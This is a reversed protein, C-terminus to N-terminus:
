VNLTMRDKLVQVARKGFFWFPLIGKSLDIDGIDNGEYCSITLLDNESIWAVDCSNIFEMNRMVVDLKRKSFVPADPNKRWDIFEFSHFLLSIIDTQKSSVIKKMVRKLEYHNLGPIIQDNREYFPTSFSRYTTLPLEALNRSPDKMFRNCTFQPSIKCYRSRYFLSMDYRYGLEELVSLTDNNAGYRGARFSLPRRGLVKEYFETCRSIIEYQEERSYQWLYRRESDAMHDPHVHVGVSHGAAEIDKLIEEIGTEGHDVIEALDVFFLAQIHYKDFLQFLYRIGYEGDETKCYVMNQLANNGVPAETDVSVLIKQKM